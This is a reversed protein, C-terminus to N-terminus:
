VEEEVPLDEEEENTHLLDLLTENRTQLAAYDATTLTVVASQTWVVVTAELIPTKDKVSCLFLLYLTQYLYLTSLLPTIFTAILATYDLGSSLRSNQL